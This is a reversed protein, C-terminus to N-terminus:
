SRNRPSDVLWVDLGDLLDDVALDVPSTVNVPADGSWKEQEVQGEDSTEITSLDCHGNNGVEDHNKGAKEGGKTVLVSWLLPAPIGNSTNSVKDNNPMQSDM